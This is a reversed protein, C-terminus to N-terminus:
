SLGVRSYLQRVNTAITVPTLGFADAIRITHAAVTGAVDAKWRGVDIDVGHVHLLHTVDPPRGFRRRDESRLLSYWSDVGCSFCLGVGDGRVGSTYTGAADVAITTASPMWAAFVNQVQPLARRLDETLPADVRLDEGHRMATLLLAAVWPDAAPCTAAMDARDTPVDFWLDFPQSWAPSMVTAAVRSM